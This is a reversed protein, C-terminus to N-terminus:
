KESYLRMDHGRTPHFRPRREGYTFLQAIKPEIVVGKVREKKVRLM